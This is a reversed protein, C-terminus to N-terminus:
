SSPICPGTFSNVAPPFSHVARHLFEGGPPDLKRPSKHLSARSLSAARLYLHQAHISTSTSAAAPVFSFYTEAVDQSRRGPSRTRDHRQIPERAISLTWIIYHSFHFSFLSCLSFLRGPNGLAQQMLVRHLSRASGDLHSLVGSRGFGSARIGVGSVQSPALTGRSLGVSDRSSLARHVYSSQACARFLGFFRCM